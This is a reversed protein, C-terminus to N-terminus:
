TSVRGVGRGTCASADSYGRGRWCGPGSATVFWQAPQAHSCHRGCSQSGAEAQPPRAIGTDQSCSFARFQASSFAARRTTAPCRSATAVVRVPATTAAFAASATTAAHRHRRSIGARAKAKWTRRRVALPVSRVSSTCREPPQVGAYLFCPCPCSSCARVVCCQAM